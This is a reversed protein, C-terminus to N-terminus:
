EKKKVREILLLLIKKTKKNPLISSLSSSLLSPALTKLESILLVFKKQLYSLSFFLFSITQSQRTHAAPNNVLSAAPLPHPPGPSPASTTSVLRRHSGILQRRGMPQVLGCRRPGRSLPLANSSEPSRLGLTSPLRSEHKKLRAPCTATSWEWGFCRRGFKKANQDKM